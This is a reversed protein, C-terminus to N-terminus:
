RVGLRKLAAAILEQDIRAGTKRLKEVALAFDLVGRQAAAELIGITGAVRLGRRLAEARGKRDDILLLHAGIELALSIAEKEGPDLNLNYDIFRPTQIKIWAPHYAIWERVVHPTKAHQLEAFVTPPIIIEGFLIKLSDAAGCEILYHLPSADAVVASM